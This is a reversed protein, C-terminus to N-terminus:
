DPCRGPSTTGLKTTLHDPFRALAFIPLPILHQWVQKAIAPVTTQLTYTDGATINHIEDDNAPTVKVLYQVGLM